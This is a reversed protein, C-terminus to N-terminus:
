FQRGDQFLHMAYKTLFTFFIPHNSFITCTNPHTQITPASLLAYPKCRGVVLFFFVEPVFSFDRYLLTLRVFLSSKQPPEPDDCFLYLRLWLQCGDAPLQWNGSLVCSYLDQEQSLQWRESNRSLHVKRQSFFM